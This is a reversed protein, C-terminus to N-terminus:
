FITEQPVICSRWVGAQPLSCAASRQHPLRYGCKSCAAVDLGRKTADERHTKEVSASAAVIHGDVMRVIQAYAYKNSLFLKLQLPKFGRALSQQM